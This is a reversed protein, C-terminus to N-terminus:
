ARGGGRGGNKPFTLKKEDDDRFGVLVRLFPATGLDKIRARSRM